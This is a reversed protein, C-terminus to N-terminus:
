NFKISNVMKSFASKYNEAEPKYYTAFIKYVKGGHVAFYIKSDLDAKSKFNAVGAPTGGLSIKSFSGLKANQELVKDLSNGKADLITISIACDARRDGSISFQSGSGGMRFNDPIQISFGAGNATKFTSSPPDAEKTVVKKEKSPAIGVKFSALIEQFKPKLTEYQDGIVDFTIITILKTDKTVVYMEGTLNSVKYPFSYALKVAPLGDITVNEPAKYIEPSYIKHNEIFAELTTTDAKAITMVDIKAGPVDEENLVRGMNLFETRAEASSYVVFRSGPETAKVWTKPFKVQMTSVDDTYSDLDTIEPSKVKKDSGCSILIIAAFALM